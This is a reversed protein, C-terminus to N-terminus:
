FPFSKTNTETQYMVRIFSVCYYVVISGDLYVAILTLHLFIGSRCIM